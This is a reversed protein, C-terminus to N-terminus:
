PGGSGTGPSGDGMHLTNDGASVAPVEGGMPATAAVEERGRVRQQSTDWSPM